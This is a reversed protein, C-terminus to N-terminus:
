ILRKSIGSIPSAPFLFEESAFYASTKRSIETSFSAQGRFIAGVVDVVSVIASPSASATASM